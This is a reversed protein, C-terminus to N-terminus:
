EAYEDPLKWVTQMIEAYERKGASERKGYYVTLITGDNRLVSAPYGCDVDYLRNNLAYGLDWTKGDDKSFAVHIGFPAVRHGYVSVLTKGVKLLHAPSGEREEMIPHPKTFTKGGDESECQWVAFPVNMRIQVVLKGPATEITHVECPYLDVTDSIDLESLLTFETGDPEMRYAALRHTANQEKEYVVGIYILGGDATRSAGHPSTVPAKQIAGFTKGGDESIRYISGLYEKAGGRKRLYDLYALVIGDYGDNRYFEGGNKFYIEQDEVTNNFSTVIVRENSKGFTTIGMDRDDLPTDFVVGPVSWTEGDDASYVIVGKGFPDCHRTRFGSCVAALRGDPLRDVSPWAFYCFPSDPNSCITKESLIELQKM